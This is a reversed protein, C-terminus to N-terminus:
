IDNAWASAQVHKQHRRAAEAAMRKGYCPVCVWKRYVQSFFVELSRCDACPPTSAVASARRMLEEHENHDM